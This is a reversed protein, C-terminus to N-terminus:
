HNQKQKEKELLRVIKEDSQAALLALATKVVDSRNCRFERPKLSLEDILRDDSDTLSLTVRKFVRSKAPKESAKAASNEPAADNAGSAFADIEDTTPRRRPKVM